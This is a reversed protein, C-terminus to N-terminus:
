SRIFGCLHWSVALIVTLMGFRGVTQLIMSFSRTRLGLYYTLQQNVVRQDILELPRGVQEDWSRGREIGVPM